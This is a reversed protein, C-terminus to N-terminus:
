KQTEEISKMIDDFIKNKNQNSIKVPEQSQNVQEKTNKEQIVNKEEKKELSKKNKVKRPSPVQTRRIQNGGLTKKPQSQIIPVSQISPINQTELQRKQYEQQEKELKTIKNQINFIYLIGSFFIIISLSIVVIILIKIVKNNKEETMMNKGKPM